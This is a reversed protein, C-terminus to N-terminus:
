HDDKSQNGEHHLPSAAVRVESTCQSGPNSGWSCPRWPTVGVAGDMVSYVKPPIVPVTRLRVPSM